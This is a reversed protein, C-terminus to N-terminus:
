GFGHDKREKKRGHIPYLKYLEFPMWDQTM